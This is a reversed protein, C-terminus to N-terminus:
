LIIIPKKCGDVVPHIVWNNGPDTTSGGKVAGEAGRLMCCWHARAANVHPATDLGLGGGIDPPWSWIEAGDANTGRVIEAIKQCNHVAHIENWGAHGADYIWDGSVMVIDGGKLNGLSENVDTPDGPASPDLTGTFLNIGALLTLLAALIALIAVIVEGGPVFLIIALIALLFALIEYLWDLFNKIGAGEFECHLHKMYKLDDGSQPYGLNIGTIDSNEAVLYGQEQNWYDHKDASLDTPGPALLINMTADDDGFKSANLGSVRPRFIGSHGPSGVVGIACEQNDPLPVPNGNEDTCSFRTGLCILRGYLYWRCAAILGLNLGILVPLYWPTAALELPAVVATILILWTAAVAASSLPSPTFDKKNICETYKRYQPM